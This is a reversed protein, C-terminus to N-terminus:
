SATSLASMVEEATSSEKTLKQKAGTLLDSASAATDQSTIVVLAVDGTDM